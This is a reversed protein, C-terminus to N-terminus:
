YKIPESHTMFYQDMRSNDHPLSMDRGFDVALHYAVCQVAAVFELAQFDRSCIELQLDRSDIGNTGIVLGSGHVEKMYRALALLKEQERGGDNLVILCHRSNYGYNPGHIGEEIEYGICPIQPTEWVKMAGELSVGYLEDAGTFVICEARLMSHKAQDMWNMAKTIITLQNGAALRADTLLQDYRAEDIHGRQLGLEMGLLMQVLVSCSYGITRMPHEEHGCGMVLHLEAESAIVTEESETIALTPLGMEMVKHLAERSLISTGTQSTFVYLANAPYQYMGYLFENPTISRSQLGSVKEVFAKATVAATNSTGSGVFIIQELKHIEGGLQEICKASNDKWGDLVADLRSPTRKICDLMTVM